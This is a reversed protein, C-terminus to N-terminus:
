EEIRDAWGDFGDERADRGEGTYFPLPPLQQVVAARAQAAMVETQAQLAKAMTELVSDPKVCVSSLM